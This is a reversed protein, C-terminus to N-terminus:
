LSICVYLSLISLSLSRFCNSRGQECHRGTAGLPCRCRASSSIEDDVCMGGRQCKMENCTKTTEVADIENAAGSEWLKMGQRGGGGGGGGARVSGDRYGHEAVVAAISNDLIPKTTSTHSKRQNEEREAVTAADSPSGTGNSPMTHDQHPKQQQLQPEPSAAGSSGSYAASDSQRNDDSSQRSSSAGSWYSMTKAKNSGRGRGGGNSPRARQRETSSKSSNQKAYPTGGAGNRQRSGRERQLRGRQKNQRGGGSSTPTMADFVSRKRVEGVFMSEDDVNAIKKDDDALDQLQKPLSRGVAHDTTSTTRREDDDHRSTLQQLEVEENDTTTTTPRM